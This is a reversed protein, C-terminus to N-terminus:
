RNCRQSDVLRLLGSSMASMSSCSIMSTIHTEIKGGGSCELLSYFLDLVNYYKDLLVTKTALHTSARKKRKKRSQTTEDVTNDADEQV